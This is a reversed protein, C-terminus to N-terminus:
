APGSVLKAGHKAIGGAEADKGVMFGTINQVFLLPVGRQACLQVFHAGQPAVASTTPRSFIHTTTITTSLLPYDYITTTPLLHDYYCCYYCTYCCYRQDCAIVQNGQRRVRLLPCRRQGGRGGPLGQDARLGHHAVLRVGAHALADGIM